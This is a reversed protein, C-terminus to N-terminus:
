DSLRAVGKAAGRSGPGVGKNRRDSGVIESEQPCGTGEVRRRNNRRVPWPGSNALEQHLRDRETGREYGAFVGPVTKASKESGGIGEAGRGNDAHEEFEPNAS